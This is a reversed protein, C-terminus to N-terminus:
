IEFSSFKWSNKASTCYFSWNPHFHLVSNTQDIELHLVELSLIKVIWM